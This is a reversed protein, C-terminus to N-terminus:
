NVQHSHTCCYNGPFPKNTMCGKWTAPAALPAAGGKNQALADMLKKNATTLLTVSATLALNANMLQQLITTDNL